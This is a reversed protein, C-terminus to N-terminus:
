EKWVGALAADVKQWRAYRRRYGEAAEANPMYTKGMHVMAAAAAQLDPYAGGAVAATMAAGLAGLENADVTEIPMELIDAFMQVWVPSNVVGGALRAADAKSVKMLRETHKKHGYVVGEYVSKVMDARTHSSDLGVFCARARADDTGSFLYPLFVIGEANGSVAMENAQAYPNEADPMLTRLFWELNSASTPSCEECLYYGPLCYLSNMKVIHELEPERSIFENISWTGAILALRSEDTVNMAIACADIDFLGAAVPTGPLLGCKKACEETVGGCTNESYVIPPLRDAITDLGLMALTERDYDAKSLDLLGSGSIDTIEAMAEGTMRFRLYDKVGFIWRTNEITEPEHDKLWCLLAAPQCALMSQMTRPFAAQAVGRAYWKEIYDVARSDTSIIGNRAPKNDKGWLYLGKGHGSFSLGLIDEAAVGSTEIAERIVTCNAEYLEEMDRETHGPAPTIMRTNRKASAIEKGTIDFLVAKSATGGHDVGLVYKM